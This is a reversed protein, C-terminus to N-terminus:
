FLEKIEHTGFDVLPFPRGAPGPLPTELDLGLSHFITAVVEPPSAPREAPVAAIPDSKGVVRGGKVGGGAFYSTWCQPWHDRGGAPNVRPTRGFEQLNCVLTNDLMGRQVLDEILASYAQDYMPAVINKMGEISTFPKTGHIDWTIEDFVTLFTNVTVFRVGAEILRRALLCCQGFRNMGYRERVKQPEKTLDFAARAQPSTMIRFAAEFNSDLLKATESAEFNDATEEVIERLRRRRDVRAEGIQPPPLLDPVKFDPKSPDAMLAFPDHAKGLFGADQGHPMNGGTNGMPEPLIVHPPLDTKRGRLYATVCGAHPTNIGGSFLRGTQLMQHGTDHVAAATHFCSRVLSFKDALKAHQPLIECIEMGPAATKIPKFPGRIEVPADPKMDFTDLQSPAGLNFIMIVSRDDHKKDIAGAEKAALFQPLSLGIAGLAGAQLFDRRTTGDCTTVSGPGTLKFM